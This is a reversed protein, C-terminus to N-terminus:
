REEEMVFIVAIATGNRVGHEFPALDGLGVPAGEPSLEMVVMGPGVETLRGRFRQVLVLTSM